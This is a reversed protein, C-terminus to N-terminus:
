YWFWCDIKMVKPLSCFIGYVLLWFFCEFGSTLEEVDLVLSFDGMCVLLDSGFGSILIEASMKVLLLCSCIVSYILTPEWFKGTHRISPHM